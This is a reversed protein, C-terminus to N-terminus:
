AHWTGNILDSDLEPDDNAIMRGERRVITPWIFVFDEHSM